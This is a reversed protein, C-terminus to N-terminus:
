VVYAADELDLTWVKIDNKRCAEMFDGIKEHPKLHRHCHPCAYAATGHSMVTATGCDPCIALSFGEAYGMAIAKAFIHKAVAAQMLGYYREGFRKEKIDIGYAEWVTERFHQDDYLEEASVGEFSASIFMRIAQQTAKAKIREKM